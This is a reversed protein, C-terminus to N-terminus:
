RPRPARRFFPAAREITTTIVEDVNARGYYARALEEGALDEIDVWGEVVPVPRLFPVETLFVRSSAPRAGPDLFAPSEALTRRSPVTRGSAAISRQGEPSNAYEIFAWAAARARSTRPLCYADAHLIGARQRRRPLPAVDWDFSTITRYMPVGRRSNLFMGIQFLATVAIAPLATTRDVLWAPAPLGLGELALNLPGYRPNFIWLWILAYAVSPVITPVYVAVRYLGVGRRARNLLLALGLAILVRLPVTLAVFVLSNQLAIGFLPDRVLERFNGLGHWQPASLGDYATFALGVSVVVPVVVLVLVGLLYPALLLYLTARYRIL